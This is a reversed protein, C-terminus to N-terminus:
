VHKGMLLTTRYCNGSLLHAVDDPLQRLEALASRFPPRLDARRKGKLAIAPSAGASRAKGTLYDVKQRAM